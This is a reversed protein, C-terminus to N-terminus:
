FLSPLGHAIASKVTSGAKLCCHDLERLWLSATASRPERFTLSPWKGKCPSTLYVVPISSLVEGLRPMSDSNEVQKLMSLGDDLNSAYPTRHQHQSVRDLRATDENVDM